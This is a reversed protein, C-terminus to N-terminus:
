TIRAGAVVVYTKPGPSLSKVGTVKRCVFMSFHNKRPPRLRDITCTHMCVSELNRLAKIDHLDSLYKSNINKM